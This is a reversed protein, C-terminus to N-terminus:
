PTARSIIRTPRRAADTGDRNAPVCLRTPKELVYTKPQAFQDVVTATLGRPFKPDGKSVKADYCDFHDVTHTAPDPAVLGAATPVLVRSAKKTDLVLEGHPHFQNTVHLDTRPTHKPQKPRAKALKIGIAELLTATDANSEPGVTAPNCLAPAKKADFTRNAEFRDTLTTQLRKPFKAAGASPKAGYCMFPGVLSPIFDYVENQCGLDSTLTPLTLTDGPVPLPITLTPADAMSSVCPMIPPFFETGDTLKAYGTLIPKVDITTAGSPPKFNFNFAFTGTTPAGDPLAIVVFQTGPEATLTRNADIRLSTATTIALNGNTNSQDHAYSGVFDSAGAPMQIVLPDLLLLRVLLELDTITDFTSFISDNICQLVLLGLVSQKVLSRMFAEERRSRNQLIENRSAFLTEISSM